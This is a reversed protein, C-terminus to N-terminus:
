KIFARARENIEGRLRAAERPETVRAGVCVRVAETMGELEVFQTRQCYIGGRRKTSVVRTNSLVRKM